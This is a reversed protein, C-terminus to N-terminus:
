VTGLVAEEAVKSHQKVLDDKARIDQVVSSLRESLVKMKVNSDDELEKSSIEPSQTSNPSSKATDQDLVSFQWVDHLNVQKSMECFSPLPNLSHIVSVESVWGYEYGISAYGISRYESVREISGSHRKKFERITTGTDRIPSVYSEFSHSEFSEFFSCILVKVVM